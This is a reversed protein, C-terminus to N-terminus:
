PNSQKPDATGQYSADAGPAPEDFHIDDQPSPTVKPKAKVTEKKPPEAAYFKSMDKEVSVRNGEEDYLLFGYRKMFNGANKITKSLGEYRIKIYYGDKLQGTDWLRELIANGCSVKVIEDNDMLLEMYPVMDAKILDKGISFIEGEITEGPKEPNWQEAYFTDFREDKPLNKPKPM